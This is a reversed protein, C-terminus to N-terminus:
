TKDGMMSNNYKEDEDSERTIKVHQWQTLDPRPVQVFVGDDAEIRRSM